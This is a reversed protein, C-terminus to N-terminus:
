TIRLNCVPCFRRHLDYEDIFIEYGVQECGRIITQSQSQISGFLAPLVSCIYSACARYPLDPYYKDAVALFDESPHQSQGRGQHNDGEISLPIIHLFTELHDTTLRGRQIELSCITDLIVKYSGASKLQSLGIMVNYLILKRRPSVAEGVSEKTRSEAGSLTNFSSMGWLNDAILDKPFPARALGDLGIHRVDSEEVDEPMSDFRQIDSSLDDDANELIKTSSPKTEPTEVSSSSKRIPKFSSSQNKAPTRIYAVDDELGSSESSMSRHRMSSKESLRRPSPPLRPSQFSPSEPVDSDEYYVGYVRPDGWQSHANDSLYYIYGDETFYVKWGAGQFSFEELASCDDTAATTATPTWAERVTEHSYPSLSEAPLNTEIIYPDTDSESTYNLPQTVDSYAFGGERSSHVVNHM